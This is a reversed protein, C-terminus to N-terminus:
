LNIKKVKMQNYEAVKDINKFREELNKEIDACYDYVEPMIGAKRYMERM